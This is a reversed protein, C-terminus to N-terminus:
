HDGSGNSASIPTAGNGNGYSQAGNPHGNANSEAKGQGVLRSHKDDLQPLDHAPNFNFFNTPKLWVSLHEVPMVPYDEPRPIHTAGYTLWLVLDEDEVKHGDKTWPGISDEAIGRSQPVYKGAPWLQDEDYRSIWMSHQAFEARQGVQSDARALLADWDKTHIKYAVPLKSAYHHKHPNTISWVRHKSDDWDYGGAKTLPTRQVYFGNGAHNNAHGAPYPTHMADSQVVTNEVGDIMPDLRLSFLHQHHHANIGPAVEVGYTAEEDEGPRKCYMNLIGTLRTELQFSGDTYFNFNFIYEYNAVTSIMQIVLKRGRASRMRGRVRYDTHKWALGADEEHICICQKITTATGDLAVHSGDLYAITGLCDCGLSLSNALTGMGYEGVDFAFKRPHPHATEAYPVVMEAVSMRYFLPRVTGNDNYTVTSLVLGDRPHFGVHFRWKQWSLENGQLTFSVGEPQVVHLPKLDTRLPPMSPDQAMLDPLYDFSKMPPAIRERGSYALAEDADVTIPGPRGDFDHTNTDKPGRHRPFDIAIVKMANSDIVVSFDMPHAYLNEHESKRAYVLCQQLRLGADFRDDYGISWGDAYLNEPEVGVERAVAVIRPDARLVFEAENVEEPTLGPQAGYPLKGLKTVKGLMHAADAALPGQMKWVQGANETLDVLVEYASGSVADIIQVEVGRRACETRATALDINSNRPVPLGLVRLVAAKSPPVHLSSAFKIAKIDTQTAIYERVVLSSAAIRFACSCPDACTDLM